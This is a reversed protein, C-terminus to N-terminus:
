GRNPRFMCWTHIHGVDTEAIARFGVREYYAVNSPDETSLSVGTSIPDSESMAQIHELLLRGYGTGQHGPAVGLMGLFYHSDKPEGHSSEREYRKMRDYADRGVARALRQHARRFEPSEPVEGPATVLAAAVYEQGQRIGLVPWHNILRKDCYCGVLDRLRQDYEVGADSLVFRMVPYDRFAAALVDIVRERDAETLREITVGSGPVVRMTCYAFGSPVEEGDAMARVLLSDPQLDEGIAAALREVCCRFKTQVDCVEGGLRLRVVPTGREVITGPQVHWAELRAPQPVPGGLHIPNLRIECRIPM